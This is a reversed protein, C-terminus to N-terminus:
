NDGSGHGSKDNTRSKGTDGGKGADGSKGATGSQGANSAASGTTSGPKGTTSGGTTGSSAGTGGTANSPKGTTGSGSTGANPGTKDDGGKDKTGNKGLGLSDAVASGQNGGITKEVADRLRSSFSGNSGTGTSGTTTSPTTPITPTTPTTGQDTSTAPKPTQGIGVTSTGLGSSSAVPTTPTGTTQTGGTTQPATTISAVDIAQASPTQGSPKQTTEPTKEALTEDTSKLSRLADLGRLQEPTAGTTDTTTTPNEVAPSGYDGFFQGFITKVDHAVIQDFRLNTQQSSGIGANVSEETSPVPTPDGPAGQSYQWSHNDLWGKILTNGPDAKSLAGVIGEPTIENPWVCNPCYSMGPAFPNFAVVAAAFLNTVARGLEQGTPIQIPNGAPDAQLHDIFAQYGDATVDTLNVTQGAWPQLYSGDEATVTGPLDYPKGNEDVYPNTPVYGGFSQQGTAAPDYYYGQYLASIPVTFFNNVIPLPKLGVTTLFANEADFPVFPACVTTGCLSNAPLETIALATLTDGVPGSIYPNPLLLMAPGRYKPPDGPDSGWVNTANSVWFSGTFLYAASTYNVADVEYKPINIIDIAINIPINFPSSAATLIIRTTVVRPADTAKVSVAASSAVPAAAVSGTTLSAAAVIAAGAALLPNVSRKGTTGTGADVAVAPASPRRDAARDRGATPATRNKRHKGGNTSSAM